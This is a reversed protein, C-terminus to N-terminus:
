PAVSGMLKRMENLVTQSLQNQQAEVESLFRITEKQTFAADLGAIDLTTSTSNGTPTKYRVRLTDFHEADPKKLYDRVANVIKAGTVHVPLGASVKVVRQEVKLNGGADFEGDEHAILEMYEFEGSKLANSLTQSKYASPVFRYSVRYQEPNGQKDRAGSPDDFYFLDRHAPVKSAQTSLRKFLAAVDKVAVGAGMTLLVTATHGNPNPRVMVHSSMEIGETRTKGAKRTRATNFDRLAVDSVAADAKNLLLEYWGNTSDYRADVLITRALKTKSVEVPPAIKLADFCRLMKMFTTKSPNEVASRTWSQMEIEYFHVTRRDLPLVM